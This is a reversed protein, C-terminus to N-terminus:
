ATGARGISFALNPSHRLAKEQFKTIVSTPRDIITPPVANRRLAQDKQQRGFEPLRRSFLWEILGPRFRIKRRESAFYTGTFM